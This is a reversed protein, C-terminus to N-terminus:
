KMLPKFYQIIQAAVEDFDRTDIMAQSSGKDKGPKLVSNLIGKIYYAYLKDEVSLMTKEENLFNSISKLNRM